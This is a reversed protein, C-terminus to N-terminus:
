GDNVVVLFRRPFVHAVALNFARHNNRRLERAADVLLVLGPNREYDIVAVVEHAGREFLSSVLRVLASFSGVM